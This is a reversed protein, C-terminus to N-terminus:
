ADPVVMGALRKQGDKRRQWSEVYITSEDGDFLPQVERYFDQNGEIFSGAEKGVVDEGFFDFGAPNAWTYIKNLNMEVLIDPISALLAEQRTSLVRLAEEARKREVIQAVQGAISSLLEKYANRIAVRWM